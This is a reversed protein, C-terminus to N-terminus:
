VYMVAQINHTSLAQTHYYMIIHNYQLQNIESHVGYRHNRQAMSHLAFDGVAHVLWLNGLVPTANWTFYDVTRVTLGPEPSCPNGGSQLRKVRLQMAINSIVGINGFMIPNFLVNHIDTRLNKESLQVMQVYARM